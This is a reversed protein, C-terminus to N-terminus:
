LWPIYEERVGYSSAYMGTTCDAVFREGFYNFFNAAVRLDIESQLMQQSTTVGINGSRELEHTNVEHGTASIDGAEKTVTSDFKSTSLIGRNGDADAQQYTESRTIKNSDADVPNNAGPSETDYSELRDNATSDFTTTYHSVKKDPITQTNILSGRQETATSSEGLSRSDVGAEHMDYNSLPNYQSLLAVYLKDMNNMVSVFWAEVDMVNFDDLLLINRYKKYLYRDLEHGHEKYVANYMHLMPDFLSINDTMLDKLRKTQM